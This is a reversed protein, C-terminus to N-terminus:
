PNNVETIINASIASIEDILVNVQPNDYDDLYIEEKYLRVFPYWVGSYEELSVVTFLDNKNFINPLYDLKIKITSGINIDKSQNGAIKLIVLDGM